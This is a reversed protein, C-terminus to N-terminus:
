NIENTLSSWRQSNPTKQKPKRQKNTQNTPQNPKKTVVLFKLRIKSRSDSMEGLSHQKRKPWAWQGNNTMKQSEDTDQPWGIAPLLFQFHDARHRISWEKGRTQHYRPAGAELSGFSEARWTTWRIEMEGLAVLTSKSFYMELIQARIEFGKKALWNCRKWCRWIRTYSCWKHM